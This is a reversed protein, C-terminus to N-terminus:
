RNKPLLRNLPSIGSSIPFKNCNDTKEITASGSAVTGGSPLTNNHIEQSSLNSLFIATSVVLSLSIKTKPFFGSRM